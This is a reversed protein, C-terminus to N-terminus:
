ALMATCAEVLAQFPEKDKLTEFDALQWVFRVPIRSPDHGM